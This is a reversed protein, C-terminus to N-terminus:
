NDKLYNMLTIYQNYVCIGNKFEYDWYDINIRSNPYSTDFTIIKILQKIIITIKNM